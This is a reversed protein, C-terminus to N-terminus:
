RELREEGRTTQQAAAAGRAGPRPGAGDAPNQGLQRVARIVPWAAAAAVLHKLSHGSLLQGSFEFVAPDALELAKAVAYVLIVAGWRVAPAGPLPRLGALVLLLALGGFQLLVWPLANGAQLWVWVGLPGLLLVTLAVLTGARASIRGAVALGLLGAFAVAMGGRDLALGADDPQWHYGASGVATLLLGSFFLAALRRQVRALAAVPLRWLCLLGALGFGAFPLNSLVDMARPIGLWSRQDAFQHYHAPQALPPALWALLLLALSASFLLVEPKHITRSM